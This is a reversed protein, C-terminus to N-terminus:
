SPELDNGPGNQVGNLTCLLSPGYKENVSGGTIVSGKRKM